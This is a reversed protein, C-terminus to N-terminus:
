NKESTQNVERIDNWRNKNQEFLCLNEFLCHRCSKIALGYRCEDPEIWYRYKEMQLTETIFYSM